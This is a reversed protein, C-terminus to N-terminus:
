RGIEGVRIPKAPSQQSSRLDARRRFGFHACAPALSYVWHVFGNLFQRGDVTAGLWRRKPQPNCPSHKEAALKQLKLHKHQKWV